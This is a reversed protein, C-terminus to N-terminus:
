LAQSLTEIVAPSATGSAIHPLITLKRSSVMGQDLIKTKLLDLSRAQAREKRARMQATAVAGTAAAGLGELESQDQPDFITELVANAVLQAIPLGLEDRLVTALELTEQAPMEEPLSVLVVATEAPNQLMKWAREADRRLIGTPVVEVIVKPVRLMDVGHGTAPADLIVVDYKAAGDDDCETTHWWAKGLMSWEHMGPVADFFGQVYSNNFLLGYVTKSKLILAGYEELAHQPDMNVACIGHCVEVVQFGIPAVGFMAGIRDKANCMAILVRKGEAALKRAYAASFTTKGVGGKGTVIVLKPQPTRSSAQPM